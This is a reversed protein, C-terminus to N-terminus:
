SGPRRLRTNSILAAAATTVLTVSAVATIFALHTASAWIGDPMGLVIALSIVWLGPHAGPIASPGLSMQARDRRAKPLPAPAVAVLLIVSIGFVAALAPLGALGYGSALVSVAFV